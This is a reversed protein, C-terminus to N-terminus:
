RIGFVQQFLEGYIAVFDEDWSTEIKNHELLSIHASQLLNNNLYLSEFLSKISNIDYPNVTFGLGNKIVYEGLSTNDSFIGPVGTLLSEHYKNSIAYKVNVNKNPYAAWIVDTQKYFDLGEEYQYRGTFCVNKCDSSYTKLAEFDEGDGHFSLSFRLDNKLACVLNKLIPLYRIRGVFSIRLPNHIRYTENQFFLASKNELIVKNINIPYQEVFFRSACIMIRAKKAKKIEAKRICWGVLGLIDPMDLNEYVLTSNKINSKKISLLTDWHSAIILDPSIQIIISNIYRAFGVINIAKVLRNGLPTRKVYIHSTWKETNYTNYKERERAWSILHLKCNPFYKNFSRLIKENRSNIPVYTDILVIKM